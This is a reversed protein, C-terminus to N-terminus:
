LRDAKRTWWECTSERKLLSKWKRISAIGRSGFPNAKYYLTDKM